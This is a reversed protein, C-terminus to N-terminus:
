WASVEKISVSFPRVANHRSVHGVVALFDYIGMAPQISEHPSAQFLIITPRPLSDVKDLLQNAPLAILDVERVKDVHHVLKVYVAALWHKDFNSNNTIIAVTDTKPHLDLTLDITGRIDVNEM